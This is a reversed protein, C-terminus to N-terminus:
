PNQPYRKRHFVEVEAAQIVRGIGGAETTSLGGVINGWELATQFSSGELWKKIFGADFCDGAGTTDKVKVKIAPTLIMEGNKWGMAGDAGNKIVVEPSLKGLLKIARVLDEEGTLGRAEKANCLFLDLNKLLSVVRKEKLTHTENTNGDMILKIKRSKLFPIAFDIERGLYFGPVYLSKGKAQPLNKVESIVLPNPDYYAIFARERPYSLSVTVKRLPRNHFMFYEESLGEERVRNLIFQSYEDTGFNTMWGVKLGLRHMAIVSNCPGGPTQIFGDSIIEHGLKPMETLGTFIFDLCYDGVVLIDYPEM